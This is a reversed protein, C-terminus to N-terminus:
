INLNKAVLDQYDKHLNVIWKTISDGCKGLVKILFQPQVILMRNILQNPAWFENQEIGLINAKRKDKTIIERIYGVELYVNRDILDFSKSLPCKQLVIRYLLSEFTPEVLSFLRPQSKVGLSPIFIKTCM